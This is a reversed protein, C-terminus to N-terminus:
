PNDSTCSFLSGSDHNLQDISAHLVFPNSNKRACSLQQVAIRDFGVGIYSVKGRRHRGSDGLFILLEGTWSRQENTTREINTVAGRSSARRMTAPQCVLFRSNEHMEAVPFCVYMVVFRCRKTREATAMVAQTLGSCLSSLCPYNGLTGRHM